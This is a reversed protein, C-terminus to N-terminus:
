NEHTLKGVFILGWIFIEVNVTIWMYIVHLDIKLNLEM